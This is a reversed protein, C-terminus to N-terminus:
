ATSKPLIFLDGRALHVILYALAGGIILGAVIALGETRDTIIM